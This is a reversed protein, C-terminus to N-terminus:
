QLNFCWAYAKSTNAREQGVPWYEIRACNRNPPFREFEMGQGPTFTYRVAGTRLEDVQDKPIETGNIILAAEFAGDVEAFVSAQRVDSANEVPGVAVIEAPRHPKDPEPTSLFATVLAGFAVALAVVYIVQRRTKTM